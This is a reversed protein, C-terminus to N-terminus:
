ILVLAIVAAIVLVALVVWVVPGVRLGSPEAEAPTPPPAQEVSTQAAPSQDGAAQKRRLTAERRAQDLAQQRARAREAMAAQRAGEEQARAAARREARMIGALTACHEDIGDGLRRLTAVLEDPGATDVTDAGAREDTVDGALDDSRSRSASGVVEVGVSALLANIRSAETAGASTLDDLRSVAVRRQVEVDARTEEIAAEVSRRQAAQSGELAATTSLAALYGDWDSASM